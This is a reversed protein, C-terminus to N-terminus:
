RKRILWGTSSVGGVFVNGSTNAAIATPSANQYDDMTTWAGSGGPNQRVIWHAGLSSTAQGAVLLNGNADAAFCRAAASNSAALQYDDVTSWAGGGNASRRVIWHSSSKGKSVVTGSGVVYLNGLADGGVGLAHSATGSALQFTDVTQWTAGGNASRRVIWAQSAVKKITV